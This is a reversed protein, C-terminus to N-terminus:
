SFINSRARSKKKPDGSVTCLVTFSSSRKLGNFNRAMEFTRHCAMEGHFALLLVLCLSTCMVNFTNM